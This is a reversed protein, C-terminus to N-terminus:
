QKRLRDIADLIILIHGITQIGMQVLTECMMHRSVLSVGTIAHKRFVSIYVAMGIERLWLVVDDTQWSMEVVTRPTCVVDTRPYTHVRQRVNNLPLPPVVIRKRSTKRGRLLVSSHVHRPTPLKGRRPYVTKACKTSGEGKACKVNPLEPPPRSPAHTSMPVVALWHWGYHIRTM